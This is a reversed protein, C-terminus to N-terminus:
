EAYSAVYGSNAQQGPAVPPGAHNFYIQFNTDAFQHGADFPLGSSADSAVRVPTPDNASVPCSETGTLGDIPYGPSAMFGLMHDFSRNELMLVILHTITHGMDFLM